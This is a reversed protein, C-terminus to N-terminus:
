RNILLELPPMRARIRLWTSTKNARPRVPPWLVLDIGIHKRIGVKRPMKSSAAQVAVLAGTVDRAAAHGASSSAPSTKERSPTSPTKTRHSSAVPQTSVVSAAIASWHNEGLDVMLFLRVSKHTDTVLGFRMTAPDMVVEPLSRFNPLPPVPMWLVRDKKYQMHSASGRDALRHMKQTCIQIEVPFGCSSVVTTHITQYGNSKPIAIYDDYEQELVEFEDHIRNVLRYCDRTTQFIVRIGIIDLGQHIGAGTYFMKGSTSAISKIRGNLRAHPDVCRSTSM